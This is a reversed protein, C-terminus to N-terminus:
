RSSWYIWECQRVATVSVTQAKRRGSLSYCQMRFTYYAAKISIAELCCWHVCAFVLFLGRPLTPSGLFPLYSFFPPNRSCQHRSTALPRTVDATLPHIPLPRWSPNKRKTAATVSPLVAPSFCIWSLNIVFLYLHFLVPRCSWQGWTPYSSNSYLSQVYQRWSQQKTRISISTM